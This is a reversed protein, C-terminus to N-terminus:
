LNMPGIVSSASLRTTLGSISLTSAPPQDRGSAQTEGASTFRQLQCSRDIKGGAVGPGGPGSLHLMARQPHPQRPHRLALVIEIAIALAISAWVPMRWALYFGVLMALIDSMSNIVSDGFYGLSITQARYRDIILPTNELM